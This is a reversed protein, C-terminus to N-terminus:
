LRAELARKILFFAIIVCVMSFIIVTYHSLFTIPTKFFINSNGEILDILAIVDIVIGIWFVVKLVTVLKKLM